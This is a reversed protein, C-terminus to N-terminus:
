FWYKFIQCDLHNVKSKKDVYIKQNALRLRKCLDTEEYYLFINEDFM